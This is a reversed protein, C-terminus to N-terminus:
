KKINLTLTLGAAQHPMTKFYPTVNLSLDDSVDFDFFHADVTADVIQLLYVGLTAIYSIELWTRTTELNQLVVGDPLSPYWVDVTNPDDDVRAKYAKFYSKYFNNNRIIFYVSTGVGGYVLPLKWFKKNYIHGLGPLAAAYIAAKKPSHLLPQDKTEVQTSDSNIQQAFVGGISAIFLIFYIPLQRLM